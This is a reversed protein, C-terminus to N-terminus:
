LYVSIVNIQSIGFGGHPHLGSLIVAVLDVMVGSM